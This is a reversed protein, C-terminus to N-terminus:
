FSDEFTADWILSTIQRSLVLPIQPVVLSVRVPLSVAFKEELMQMSDAIELPERDIMAMTNDAPPKKIM